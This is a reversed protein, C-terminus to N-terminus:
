YSTRASAVAVMRLEGDVSVPKREIGPGDFREALPEM